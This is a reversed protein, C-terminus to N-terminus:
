GLKKSIKFVYACIFLVKIYNGVLGCMTVEQSKSFFSFMSQHALQMCKNLKSQHNSMMVQAGIVLTTMSRGSPLSCWYPGM